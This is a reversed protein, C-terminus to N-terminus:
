SLNCCIEKYLAVQTGQATNGKCQSIKQLINEKYMYVKLIIIIGFSPCLFVERGM